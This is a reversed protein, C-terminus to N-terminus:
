DAAGTYWTTLGRGGRRSLSIHVHNRHRLTASCKRKSRCASSLYDRKRFGAYSAYMHDNWIVYMVGMRRAVADQNGDTDTAFLRDLLDNARARQRPRRADVMWDVARGEKHESVGGSRCRRGAASADTGPYTRELWRALALTGPRPEPHCRTQPVYRAYDEIPGDALAGSTLGLPLLLAVAFLSHRFGM